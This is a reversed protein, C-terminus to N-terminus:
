MRNKIERAFESRIYPFLNNYKDDNDATVKLSYSNNTKSRKNLHTYATITLGGPLGYFTWNGKEGHVGLGSQIPTARFVIGYEANGYTLIRELPISLEDYLLESHPKDIILPKTSCYALIHLLENEILKDKIVEQILKEPISIVLKM